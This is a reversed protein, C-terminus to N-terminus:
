YAAIRCCFTQIAFVFNEDHVYVECREIVIKQKRMNFHFSYIRSTTTMFRDFRSFFYLITFLLFEHGVDAHAREIHINMNQMGFNKNSIRANTVLM